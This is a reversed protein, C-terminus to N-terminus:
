GMVRAELTLDGFREGWGSSEYSEDGDGRGMVRAGGQTDRGGELSLQRFRRDAATHGRTFSKM